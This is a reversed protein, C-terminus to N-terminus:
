RSSIAGPKGEPEPQTGDGVLAPDVETKVIDYREKLAIVRERGARQGAWSQWRKRVDQEVDAFQARKAPEINNLRVLAAGKDNKIVSWQAIPAAKLANLGEAGLLDAVNMEPRAVFNLIRVPQALSAPDAGPQNLLDALRQAEDASDARSFNFSYFAPRDYNVRHYEFWDELDDRTPEPVKLTSSIMVRLKQQIRERIMDDGLDLQMAKAERYLVENSIWADVLPTLEDRMPLRGRAEKFVQSVDTYVSRDVIIRNPNEARLTMAKDLFFLAIGIILFHVLPESSLKRLM